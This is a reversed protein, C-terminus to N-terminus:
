NTLLSLDHVVHRFVRSAFIKRHRGCRVFFRQIRNHHLQVKTIFESKNRGSDIAFTVLKTDLQRFCRFCFVLSNAQPIARLVNRNLFLWFPCVSRNLPFLRSRYAPRQPAILGHWNPQTLSYFCAGSGQWSEMPELPLWCGESLVTQPSVPALHRNGQNRGCSSRRAKAVCMSRCLARRMRMERDNPCEFCLM